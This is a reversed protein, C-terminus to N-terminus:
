RTEVEYQVIIADRIEDVSDLSQCVESFAHHIGDHIQHLTRDMGHDLLEELKETLLCLRANLDDVEDIIRDNATRPKCRTLIPSKSPSATNKNNRPM